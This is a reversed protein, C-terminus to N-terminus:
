KCVQAASCKLGIPILELASCSAADIQKLCLEYNTANLKQDCTASPLVDLQLSRQKILCANKDAYSKGSGFDNCREALACVRQAIAERASEITAGCSALTLVLASALLKNM